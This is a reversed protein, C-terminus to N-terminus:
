ASHDLRLLFAVFEASIGDQGTFARLDSTEFFVALRERESKRIPVEDVPEAIEDELDRAYAVVRALVESVDTCGKLDGEEEIAEALYAVLHPINMTLLDPPEPPEPPEDLEAVDVPVEAPAAPADPLEAPPDLPAIPDPEATM